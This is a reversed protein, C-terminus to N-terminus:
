SHLAVTEDAPAENRVAQGFREGMKSGWFRGILSNAYAWFRVFAPLRKTPHQGIEKRFPLQKGIM